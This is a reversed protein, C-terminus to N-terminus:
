GRLSALLAEKELEMKDYDIGLCEAILRSKALDSSIYSGDSARLAIGKEALFNLFLSITGASEKKLLFKDCEPTELKSSM